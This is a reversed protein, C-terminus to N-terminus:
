EDIRSLTEASAEDNDLARFIGAARLYAARAAERNGEKKYVDGLARWDSALGWSNEVRRDFAIATDLAQRAGAYNGSLSRFSAILFWNYAAQEFYRGKEHIALSRRVAEEAAAYRGLEKEALGSVIWAFATYLNDKILAMERNVEDRVSQAAARGDRSLLKGRAIYIRSVAALERNRAQEAEALAENWSVSAEEERELSFLANGRSLGARVRLGPDDAATALRLAEDFLILADNLGGRDAQKNGLELLLEAQKRLDDIDGPNKPQSSCAPIFLLMCLAIINGAISKKM